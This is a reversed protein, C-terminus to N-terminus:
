GQVGSKVPLRVTVRLGGLEARGFTLKGHHREVVAAVISLGLGTGGTKRNRSPDIRFLREGLRPLLEDPVGQGSDEVTIVVEDASSTVALVVEGGDPAYRMANNLLNAIVQDLRQADGICSAEVVRGTVRIRGAVLVEAREVAGRGLKAVDVPGLELHTDPDDLLALARVDASLHQLRAAEHLLHAMLREREPGAFRERDALADAIGLVSTIPTALEHALDAFLRRRQADAHRLQSTRQELASAMKAFEATMELNEASNLVPPLKAHLDGGSIKRFASTLVRVRMRTVYWTYLWAMFVLFAMPLGLVLAVGVWSEARRVM